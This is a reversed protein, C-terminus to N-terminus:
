KLGKCIPILCLLLVIGLLGVIIGPILLEGFVMSMCMGTGLTLAGVIGLVVTGVTKGNLRVAPKGQIKRRVVLMILLVLIGAAGVVIGQRLANWEAIMCMCMGLAFLIGGVTGMILAVFYDYKM